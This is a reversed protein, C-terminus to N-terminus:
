KKKICIATVDDYLTEYGTFEYVSGVVAHVIDISKKEINEQFVESLREEGYLEPSCSGHAETIGDTYLFICDGTNVHFIHETFTAGDTLGLLPGTKDIMLYQNHLRDYYFCPPHGASVILIDDSEIDLSCIVLSSFYYTVSLNKIVLENLIQVVDKPHMDKFNISRILGRISSGIYSSAIGHGAVDCLVIIYQHESAYFADFFDGSIEDMPIFTSAIDYKNIENFDPLLLVQLSRVKNLEKREKKVEAYLHKRSEIETGLLNVFDLYLSVIQRSDDSFKTKKQFVVQGSYENNYNFNGVICHVTKESVKKISFISVPQENNFISEVKSILYTYGVPQFDDSLKKKKIEITDGPFIIIECFHSGIVEAIVFFSEILNKKNANNLNERILQNLQVLKKNSFKQQRYLLEIKNQYQITKAIQSVKSTVEYPIFPKRIYDNAGANYAAEISKSDEFSTFMLIFLKENDRESRIKRCIDIGNGDPLIVDILVIDPKFIKIKEYFDQATPSVYLVYKNRFIEELVKRMLIDDDVALIKISNAESISDIM